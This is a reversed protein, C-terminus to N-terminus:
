SRMEGAFGSVQHMAAHGGSIDRMSLPAELNNGARNEGM